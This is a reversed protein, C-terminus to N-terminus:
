SETYGGFCHVGGQVYYTATVVDRPKIYPITKYDACQVLWCGEGSKITFVCGYIAM